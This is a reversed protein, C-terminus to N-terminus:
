LKKLKENVERADKKASEAKTNIDEIYNMLKIVITATFIGAASILLILLAIGLTIKKALFYAIGIAGGLGFIVAGFFQFFAIFTTIAM